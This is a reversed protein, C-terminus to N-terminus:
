RGLVKKLSLKNSYEMAGLRFLKFAAWFSVVVYVAILLSSFGFEVLGLEGLSNRFLLIMPATLPFYSAVLGITGSPDSIIIGAFYIPLISLIIFVSSLSQAEKYSPVAAGVGIMINAIILFGGVIYFLSQLIVMPDPEFESLDVPLDFNINLLLLGAISLILLAALQVLVLGGQAALKGAILDKPKIVSLITEIMRNEKEESVSQLLYNSSLFVLVFYIILAVAPTIFNSIGIDVQKGNEYVQLDASYEALYNNVAEKNDISDFIEQKLLGEAVNGFVGNSFVGQNQAYVEISGTDLVDKPYYFFAEYEGQEVGEIGEERSDAVDYLSPLSRTSITDSEDLLLVQQGEDLDESSFIEEAQSSSFGSIFGVFVIFIPFFLTTFWFSPKKIVKLFERSAVILVKNKM